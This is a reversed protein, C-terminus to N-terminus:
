MTKELPRMSVMVNGFGLPDGFDIMADGYFDDLPWVTGESATSMPADFGIMSDCYNNLPWMPKISNLPADFGIMPDSYDNLIPWMPKVSNLPADFPVMTPLTQFTGSLNDLGPNRLPQCFGFDTSSLEEFNEMPANMGFWNPVLNECHNDFGPNRLPQCFGFDTSSLVEFNEMPANMGFWNPVFNENGVEKNEENNRELVGIRATIAELKSELDRSFIELSEVSLGNIWGDSFGLLFREFREKKASPNGDEGALKEDLCDFSQDLKELCDVSKGLKINKGKKVYQECSNIVHIVESSNEPWSEVKGDPGLCVTCAKIGCLISLEMTKKLIGDKRNKYTLKRARKNEILKSPKIQHGQKEEEIAAKVM